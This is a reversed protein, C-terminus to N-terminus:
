KKYKAIAIKRLSIALFASITTIVAAGYFAILYTGTIDYIKGYIYPGFLGGAGYSSFLLGYNAGLHKMGFMDSTVAPYLMMCSGFALGFIACLIYYFIPNTGGYRLGLSVAAFLLSAASLIRLRGLKDSISGVIIRGTGNFIAIVSLMFAATTKEIGKEMVYSVIHSMTGLGVTLNFFWTLWAIYFLENKLVQSPSLEALPPRPTTTALFEKAWEPPPLKIFRSATLTVVFFVTGMYLFSKEWGYNTILWRAVPSLIFAGAGFGFVMLGGALGRKHPLWKIATAVPTLYAFGTGLGGMVGYTLLMYPLSKAFGSLFYGASFLVAGISCIITPGYKDQLKGGWIMGITYVLLFVSFPLSAQAKTWGFADQLPKIYVGWVYAVGLMLMILIGSILAAALKGKEKKSSM